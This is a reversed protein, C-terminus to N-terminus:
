ENAAADPVTSNILASCRWPDLAPPVLEIGDKALTLGCPAPSVWRLASPRIAALYQEKKVALNRLDALSGAKVNARNRRPTSVEVEEKEESDGGFDLVDSDSDHGSSESFEGPFPPAAEFSPMFPLAYGDPTQSPPVLSESPTPSPEPSPAPSPAQALASHDPAMIALSRRRYKRPPESVDSESGSESDSEAELEQLRHRLQQNKNALTLNRGQLRGIRELRSVLPLPM